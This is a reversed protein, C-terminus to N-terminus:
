SFKHLRLVYQRTIPKNYKEAFLRACEALSLDKHMKVFDLEEQTFKTLRKTRQWETNKMNHYEESSKLHEPVEEEGKWIRSIFNRPVYIGYREKIAKSVDETTFSKNKSKMIMIYQEDTLNRNKPYPVLKVPELVQEKRKEKEKEKEKKGLMQPQMEPLVFPRFSISELKELTYLDSTTKLRSDGIVNQIRKDCWREKWHKTLQEVTKVENVDFDDSFKTTFLFGFYVGRKQGHQLITKPLGLHSLIDQLLSFRDIRKTTSVKWQDNYDKCVAYLEDPIQVSGFGKTFGIFKLQPLRDYQVSKGHISTTIFGFIPEGYKQLHYDFVERSFALTALLKGGNTNFGFPQLPVCCSINMFKKLADQKNEKYDFQQQELEHQLFRDREGLSYVDSSLCLLGIYNQTLKDKVLIRIQRGVVGTSPLRSTKKRLYNYLALQHNTECFELEPEIHLKAWEQSTSLNFIKNEFKNMVQTTKIEELKCAYMLDDSSMERFQEFCKILYHKQEEQVHQTHYEPNYDIQKEMKLAEQIEVTTKSSTGLLFELLLEIQPTKYICYNRISTLFNISDGKGYICVAYNNIATKINYMAAIRQLIVLDSKQTLKIRFGTKKGNTGLTICGEADFLGAVYEHSLREYPKNTCCKKLEKLKNYIEDKQASTNQVDIYQFFNKAQLLQEYKLICYPLLDDVLPEIQKGAARLVYQCRHNQKRLGGSIKLYPYHCQVAQAWGLHSQAFVLRLTYGGNKFKEIKICGDGDFFGALYKKFSETVM